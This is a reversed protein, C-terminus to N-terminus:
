FIKATELYLSTTKELMSAFSFKSAVLQVNAESFRMRLEPSAMLKKIARALADSNRPPVLLGNTGDEIIEPVGGVATGIVPVGASAAELLAYPLGEKVSPLIFIDFAKLYQKANPLFGALKVKNQLNHQNIFQEFTRREEGDSMIYFMVPEQMHRSAELLYIIGKNKTLEANTGAIFIHEPVSLTRRAEDRSLFREEEIGNHIMVLKRKPVIRYRVAADYDCRSVCIIKNQFLGGLWSFFVILMKQWYPREENFAWGHVTFIIKLSLNNATFKSVFAAVSGLGGAKSSNFHIIDPKEKQFILWLSYLSVVEKIINIDRELHPIPIVHVGTEALKEVLPGNGGCAVVVDFQDKSLHVALDFVYRQAGGWNSRTIVYIIKKRKQTM